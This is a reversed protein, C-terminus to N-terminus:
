GNAPSSKPKGRISEVIWVYFSLSGTKHPDEILERLGFLFGIGFLVVIGNISASIYALADGHSFATASDFFLFVAILFVLWVFFFEAKLNKKFHMFDSVFFCLLGVVLLTINIVPSM